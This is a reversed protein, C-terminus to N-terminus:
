KHIHRSSLQAGVRVYTKCMFRRNQGNEGRFRNYEVPCTRYGSNGDDWAGQRRNPEQGYFALPREGTAPGIVVQAGFPLAQLECSKAIREFYWGNWWWIYVESAHVEWRRAIKQAEALSTIGGVVAAVEGNHPCAAGRRNLMSIPAMGERGPLRVPSRRRKLGFMGCFIRAFLNWIGFSTLTSRSKKRGYLCFECEM